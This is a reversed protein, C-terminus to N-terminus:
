GQLLPHDAKRFLPRSSAIEIRHGVDKASVGPPNVSLQYSEVFGDPIGRRDIGTALNWAPSGALIQLCEAPRNSAPFLRCYSGKLRMNGARTM